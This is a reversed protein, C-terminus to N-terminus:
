LGHRWARARLRNLVREADDPSLEDFAAVLQEYDARARLGLVHKALDDGFRDVLADFRDNQEVTPHSPRM